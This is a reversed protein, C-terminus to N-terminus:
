CDEIACDRMFERLARWASSQINISAMAMELVGRVNRSLPNGLCLLSEEGNDEYHRYDAGALYSSYDNSSGVYRTAGFPAHELGQSMEIARRMQEMADKHIARFKVYRLLEDTLWGFHEETKKDESGRVNRSFEMILRELDHEKSPQPCSRMFDM